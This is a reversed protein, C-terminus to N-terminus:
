RGIAINRSHDVVWNELESRVVRIKRGLRLGFTCDSRRLLEYLYKESCGLEAAAQPVSMTLSTMNESKM